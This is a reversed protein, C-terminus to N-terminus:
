RGSAPWQGNNGATTLSSIERNGLLFRVYMGPETVEDSRQPAQSLAGCRTAKRTQSWTPMWPLSIERSLPQGARVGTLAEHLVERHQVCSEPVIHNALDKIDPVKM